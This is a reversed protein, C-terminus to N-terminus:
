EVPFNSSHEHVILWKGSIKQVVLTIRCQGVEDKDTIINYGTIFGASDGLMTVKPNHLSVSFSGSITGFSKWGAGISEWGETLFAGDKAPTFKSIAPSHWHISSMLEFNRDNFAKAWNIAVQLVEEEATAANVFQVFSLSFVFAICMLLGLISKTRM